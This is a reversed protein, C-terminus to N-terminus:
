TLDALRATQPPYVCVVRLESGVRQARLFDGPEVFARAKELLSVARPEGRATRATSEGEYGLM